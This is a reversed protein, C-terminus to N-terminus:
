ILDRGKRIANDGFKERVKDMTREATIKKHRDPEALDPIDGQESDVIQAVGIGILRFHDHPREILLYTLLTLGDEYIAQALQTPSHRTHSRTLSVFKNTKAKLIVTRGALGQQKCRRATKESLQWLHKQLTQPDKIDKAFTTESSVSKTERSPDVKRRDIGRALEALRFGSSEYRKVMDSIPISQIQGITTIGDRALREQSAKGVGWIKSVTMPALRTMTEAQGILSFGRPKELDSALKALFKNHSLGVSVTIQINKEIDNVLQALILAPPAHHLKETGTLDLFAEDISLPQVLPTLARMMERIEQGVKEYLGMNPAVIVADPCRKKAEFIPMASHVGHIRAKYCATSVVGRNGGGIIVAKDALEPRDRKEVAAYFADCDIHAISLHLWEPHTLLRPSRCNPCRNRSAGSGETANLIGLCDRCFGSSTDIDSATLNQLLGTM